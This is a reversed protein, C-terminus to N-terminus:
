VLKELSLNRLRRVVDPLLVLCCGCNNLIGFCLREHVNM